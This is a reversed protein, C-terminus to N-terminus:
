SSVEELSEEEPYLKKYLRQYHGYERIILDKARAQRIDSWNPGRLTYLKFRPDLITAIVHAQTTRDSLDARRPFYKELKELGAKYAEKLSRAGGLEILEDLDAYLRTIMPLVSSLTPYGRSAQFFDSLVEIKGLAKRLEGILSWDAEQTLELNTFDGPYHRIVAEIARRSQSFNRLIYYFSNWRTPVNITPRIM